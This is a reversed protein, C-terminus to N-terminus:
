GGRASGTRREGVVERADGGGDGGRRGFKQSERLTARVKKDSVHKSSVREGVRYKKARERLDKDYKKQRRAVAEANMADDERRGTTAGGGGGDDKAGGVRAEREYAATSANLAAFTADLAADGDADDDDRRRRGM